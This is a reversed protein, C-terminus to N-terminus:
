KNLEKKHEFVPIWYNKAINPWSLTDVVEAYVDEIYSNLINPYKNFNNIIEIAEDVTEFTKITKLNLAFGTNTSIVPIKCLAAEAIGYPGRDNISTCIYMDINNYMISSENLPHSHIFISNGGIGNAIDVLMDPRKIIDWDKNVFPLGNMGVKSIYKIKRTPYFDSTSVGASVIFSDLNHTQKLYSQVDEGASCWTIGPIPNIIETFHKSLNPISWLACIMKNYAAQPLGTLGSLTGNGLIIDFSEWEGYEWLRKNHSSNSWDYHVFEYKQAM